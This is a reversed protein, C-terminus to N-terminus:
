ARGGDLLTRYLDLHQDAVRGPDFASLDPTGTATAAADLGARLAAPSLDPLLPMWGAGVLRAIERNSSVDIAITPTDLSLSSLVSGSNLLKEQMVLTADAAGVLGAYDADDLEGIALRVRPHRAAAERVRLMLAPDYCAGAVVLYEDPRAAAAFTAIAQEVRKYPRIIGAMAYLRTGAPVGYRARVASADPLARQRYHDRYDPHRIIRTRGALTPYLAAVAAASAETMCTVADALAYIGAMRDKVLRSRRDEGFDHPQLDHATWVVAGGSAQVRRVRRRMLAYGLRVALLSRRGFRSLAIGDIWHLHYIGGPAPAGIAIDPARARLGKVLIELYPNMMADPYFAVALPGSM